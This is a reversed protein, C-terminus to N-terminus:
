GNGGMAFEQLAGLGAGWALSIGVGGASLGGGGQVAALVGSIVASIKAQRPHVEAIDTQFKYSAVGGVAAGVVRGALGAYQSGVMAGISAPAYTGVGRAMAKPWRPLSHYGNAVGDMIGLTTNAEDKQPQVRPRRTHLNNNSQIRM